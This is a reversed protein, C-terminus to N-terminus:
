ERAAGWDQEWVGAAEGVCKVKQAQLLASLPAM